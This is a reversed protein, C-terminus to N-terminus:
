RPDGGAKDKDPAPAELGGAVPDEASRPRRARSRARDVVRSANPHAILFMRLEDKMKALVTPDILGAYRAAAREVLEDVFPDVGAPPAPPPDPPASPKSM